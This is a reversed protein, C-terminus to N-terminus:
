LRNAALFAFNLLPITRLIDNYEFKDGEEQVFIIDSPILLPDKAQAVRVASLDVRFLIREEGNKRSVYVHEDDGKEGLGGARAIAESLGMNETLTIVGPKKVQGDLVIYGIERTEEPMVLINPKQFYGQAYRSNLTEQVTLATRGAVEVSGIYPFNANGFSDISYGGSLAPENFVEIKVTDGPRFGSVGTTPQTAYFSQAQPDGLQAKEEVTLILSEDNKTNTTECGAMFISLGLGLAGTIYSKKLFMTRM